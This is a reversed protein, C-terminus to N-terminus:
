IPSNQQASSPLCAKAITLVAVFLDDKRTTYLTGGYKEVTDRVNALGFGHNEGDTKTTTLVEGPTGAVEGCTNEIETVLFHEESYLGVQVRGQKCQKAAEIANDLLNGVMIILDRGPVRAWEPATDAKIEMQVGCRGALAEKEWLLANLIPSATYCQGTLIDLEVEMDKLLAM